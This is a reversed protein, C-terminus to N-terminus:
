GFRVELRGSVEHANFEFVLAALVDALVEEALSVASGDEQEAFVLASELGV